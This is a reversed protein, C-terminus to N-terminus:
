QPIFRQLNRYDNKKSKFPKQTEFKSYCVPDLWNADYKLIWTILYQLSTNEVQWQKDEKNWADMIHELNSHIFLLIVELNTLLVKDKSNIMEINETSKWLLSGKIEGEKMQDKGVVERKRILSGKM